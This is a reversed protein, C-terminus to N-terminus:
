DLPLIEANQVTVADLYVLGQKGEYRWATGNTDTREYLIRGNYRGLPKWSSLPSPRKNVQVYRIFGAFYLLITICMAIEAIM